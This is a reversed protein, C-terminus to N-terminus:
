KGRGYYLDPSPLGEGGVPRDDGALANRWLEQQVQADSECDVLAESLWSPKNSIEEAIGDSVELLKEHKVLIKRGSEILQVPLRGAQVSGSANIVRGLQENLSAQSLGRLVVVTGVKLQHRDVGSRSEVVADEQKPPRDALRADPVNVTAAPSQSDLRGGSLGCERFREGLRRLVAAAQQSDHPAPPGRVPREVPDWPRRQSTSSSLMTEVAPSSICDVPLAVAPGATSACEESVIYCSAKSVDSQARQVEEIDRLVELETFQLEEELSPAQQIKAATQAASDPVANAVAVSPQGSAASLQHPSPASSGSASGKDEEEAQMGALVPKAEAVANDLEQSGSAAVQPTAASIASAASIGASAWCGVDLSAARIVMSPCPLQLVEQIRPCPVNGAGTRLSSVAPSYRAAIAQVARRRSALDELCRQAEELTPLEGEASDYEPASSGFLDQFSIPDDGETSDLPPGGTSASSDLAVGRSGVALEDSSESDSSSSSSEEDDSDVLSRGPQNGSVNVWAPTPLPTPRDVNRVVITPMAAWIAEHSEAEENQEEM